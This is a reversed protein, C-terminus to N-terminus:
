ERHETRFDALMGLVRAILEASVLTTAARDRAARAAEFFTVRTGADVSVLRLGQKQLLGHLLQEEQSRGLQEIRLKMKASALKLAQQESIPLADFARNAVVLCGVVFGMRLDTYYRTATSWQFGLAAVAPTIFGDVRKHEYAGYADAIPM